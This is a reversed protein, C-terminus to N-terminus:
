NLSILFNAKLLSSWPLFHHGPEFESPSEHPLSPVQNQAGGQCVLPWCTFLEPFCVEAWLWFYERIISFAAKSPLSSRDDSTHLSFSTPICTFPIKEWWWYMHNWSFLHKLIGGAGAWGKQLVGRCRQLREFSQPMCKFEWTGPPQIEVKRFRIFM